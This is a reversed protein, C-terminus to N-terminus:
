SYTSPKLVRITSMVAMGYSAAATAAVPPAVVVARVVAPCAAAPTAVATAVLRAVVSTAARHAVALVIVCSTRTAVVAAVCSIAHLATVGSHDLEM